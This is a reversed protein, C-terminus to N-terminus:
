EVIFQKPLNRPRYTQVQEMRQQVSHHIRAGDPMCRSRWLNPRRWAMGKSSQNWSRQPLLEGLHWWGKLSTHLKARVDPPPNTMEARKRVPDVLLGEAGAEDLMWGLPIKALGGSNTSYGGGVDSHVGPFWVEKLDQDPTAQEFLNDRFCARCEDISVAHRVVDVAPNMRTYPLTRFRTMFGFSSVTDWVGLFRIRVSRAFHPKFRSATSFLERKDVDQDDNAFTRWMHPVLNEHETRALGFMHIAGAVARVTYAGRSFGFLYIADGPNWHKALFIYAEAFNERIGLGVGSDLLRSVFKRLRTIARPEGMTGVGPDYYTLQREDRVLSSWLRIINTPNTSIQNGTGDCCIVINKPM